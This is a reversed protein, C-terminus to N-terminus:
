NILTQVEGALNGYGTRRWTGTEGDIFVYTRQQTVGFRRWIDDGGEIHAFGSAGHRDIFPGFDSSGALGPVGVFRVQSGFQSQVSV